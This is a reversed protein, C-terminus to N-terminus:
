NRNFLTLNVKLCQLAEVPNSPYSGVTSIGPDIQDFHISSCIDESDAKFQAKKHMSGHMAKAKM